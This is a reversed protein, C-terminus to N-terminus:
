PCGMAKAMAGYTQVDIKKATLDFLEFPWGNQDFIQKRAVIAAEGPLVFNADRVSFTGQPTEYTMDFSLYTWHWAPGSVSGTGSLRKPHAVDPTDAIVLSDRWVQMYVPSVFAPGGAPKGCLVESMMGAARDLTRVVVEQETTTQGSALNLIQATGAYYAVEPQARAHVHTRGHASAALQVTLMVLSRIM